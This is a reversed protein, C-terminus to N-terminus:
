KVTSATALGTPSTTSAHPPTALWFCLSGLLSSGAILSFAIEYNGFHDVLVGCFIPGSMMGMMVVMSSIGTITGFSKPGFYDARIAVMLQGRIGLRHRAAHCIGRGDVPQGCYTLLYLGVGHAIM